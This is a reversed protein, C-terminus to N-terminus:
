FLIQVPLRGLLLEEGKRLMHPQNPELRNGSVTTGNTSGLDTIFLHGDTLQLRAHARSVGRDIAGYTTLDVDPNFRANLDSRGIVVSLDDTLVIREIMGRIMLLVEKQSGLSSTGASETHPSRQRRRSSALVATDSKEQRVRKVTAEPATRGPLTKNEDQDEM